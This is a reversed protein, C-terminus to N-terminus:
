CITSCWSIVMWKRWMKQEIITTMRLCHGMILYLHQRSRHWHAEKLETLIILWQGKLIHMCGRGILANKKLLFDSFWGNRSIKWIFVKKRDLTNRRMKVDDLQEIYLLYTFQEIVDLPNTIGCTWFTEGIWENPM